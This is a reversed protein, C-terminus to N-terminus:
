DTSPTASLASSSQAAPCPHAHATDCHSLPVGLQELVGPLTPSFVEGLGWGRGAPKSSRIVVAGHQAFHYGARMQWEASSRMKLVLTSEDGWGGHNVSYWENSKLAAVIQMVSYQDTFHREGVSIEQVNNPQLAWLDYHIRFGRYAVFLMGSMWLLVFALTFLERIASTPSALCTEAWEHRRRWDRRIDAGVAFGFVGVFVAPLLMSALFGEFGRM